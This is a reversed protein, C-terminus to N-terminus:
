GFSLCLHQQWQNPIEAINSHLVPHDQQNYPPLAWKRQVSDFHDFIEIVGLSDLSPDM